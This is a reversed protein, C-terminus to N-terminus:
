RWCLPALSAMSRWSQGPHESNLMTLYTGGIRADSVRNFVAMQAIFMSSSAVAGLALL